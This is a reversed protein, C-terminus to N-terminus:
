IFIREMSIILVSDLNEIFSVFMKKDIKADELQPKTVLEFEKSKGVCGNAWLWLWREHNGELM